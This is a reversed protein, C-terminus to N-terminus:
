SIGVLTLFYTWKCKLIGRNTSKQSSCENQNIKDAERTNENSIFYKDKFKATSM